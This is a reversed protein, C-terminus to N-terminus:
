WNSKILVVNSVPEGKFKLVGEEESLNDLLEKNNHDHTRRVADDIAESTSNPGNTIKSWDVEKQVEKSKYICVYKDLDVLYFYLAEGDGIAIDDKADIVFVLSNKTLELLNREAINNIVLLEKSLHTYKDFLAKFRKENFHTFAEGLEDVMFIDFDTKGPEKVLYVCNKIRELPDSPFSTDRKFSFAM